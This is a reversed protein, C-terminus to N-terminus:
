KLELYKYCLRDGGEMGSEREGEREREDFKRM